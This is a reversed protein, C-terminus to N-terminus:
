SAALMRRALNSFFVALQEADHADVSGNIKVGIALMNSHSGNAETEEPRCLMVPLGSRGTNWVVPATPKPPVVLAMGAEIAIRDNFERM